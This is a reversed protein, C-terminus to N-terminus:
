QAYLPAYIKKRAEIYGLRSGDWLSFLPKAGRGMPFRVATKQAWGHKAWTWYAPLIELSDADVHQPYVKCYQWANELNRAVHGGYLTIPGVFFPSLGRMWEDKAGSTTNVLSGSTLFLPKPRRMCMVRVVSGCIARHVADDTANTKKPAPKRAADFAATSSQTKARKARPRTTPTPSRPRKSGAEVKTDSDDM